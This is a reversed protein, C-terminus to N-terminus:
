RALLPRLHAMRDYVLSAAAAAAAEKLAVYVSANDVATATPDSTDGTGTFIRFEGCLNMNTAAGGGTTGAGANPIETYGTTMGALGADARELAIARFFLYERSALGSLTMSGPDAGDNALTASAELTVTAGATITFKKCGMAMAAVSSSFNATVTDVAVVLATTLKSYWLSVTAGSAAGGQGNCYEKLKVYTNSQTDTVSTVENTEGDTTQVNNIAVAVILVDGVAASEGVGGTTLSTAATKSSIQTESSGATWAM